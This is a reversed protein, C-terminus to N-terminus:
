NDQEDQTDDRYWAAIEAALEPLDAFDALARTPEHALRQALRQALLDIQESANAGAAVAAKARASEADRIAAIRERLQRITASADRANLWSCFKAVEADIIAKADDAAAMRRDRNAAALKGLDDLKHLFIDELEAVEPEVNRPVSLDFVAMPRRKRTRLSREFIGKGLIPTAAATACLVIDFRALQQRAEDLSTARTGAFREALQGANSATRSAVAIETSPRSAFYTLAAEIVTGAGICLIRCNALSGFIRESVRACLAPISLSLQSIATESRVTKAVKFAREFVWGLVQGCHGSGQARRYADKMQGLIEPEGIIMSDLGSAVAFTHGIMSSSNKVYILPEYELANDGGLSALASRVADPDAGRTYCETRNCTALLAAETAGAGRRLKELTRECHEAPVAFRERLALSAARHSIGAVTLSSDNHESM